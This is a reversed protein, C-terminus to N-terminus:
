KSSDRRLSGKVRDILSILRRGYKVYTEFRIEETTKVSDDHFVVAMHPEISFGGDYGRSLLDQVIKEVDAKGEGPYTFIEKRTKEDFFGDKIHVYAVHDRVHSYFEWASQKPYPRPKTYDDYVM